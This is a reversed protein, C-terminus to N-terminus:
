APYVTPCPSFFSASWSNAANALHALEGVQGRRSEPRPQEPVGGVSEDFEEGHHVIKGWQM